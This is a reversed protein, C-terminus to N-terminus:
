GEEQDFERFDFWFGTGALHDMEAQVIAQHGQEIELFRAFVPRGDEGTEEVMKRYFNGTEIEVQLAKQLLDLEGAVNPGHEQHAMHPKLKRIGDMITQESPVVTSLTRHSLQGTRQLDELLSRLHDVHQKEEDALVQLVRKGVVDAARKASDAYFDRVKTEYEIAMRVAEEITM